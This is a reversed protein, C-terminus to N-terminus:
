FANHFYKVYRNLSHKLNCTSEEKEGISTRNYLLMGFSAGEKSQCSTYLKLNSDVYDKHDVSVLSNHINCLL